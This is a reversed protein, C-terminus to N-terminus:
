RERELEEIRKNQAEVVANLEKIAEVLVPIMGIYNIGKYALPDRQEIDSDYYPDTGPHINETVLEPFVEELEQAIFGFQTGDILNMYAYEECRNEYMKGQLRTIKELSNDIKRINQKLSLDSPNSFTGTVTVNGNFYGAYNTSIIGSTEAFVAYNTSYSDEIIFQGGYRIGGQNGGTIESRVGYLLNFTGTGVLYARVATKGGQFYGGTGSNPMSAAKGFIATGDYSIGESAEARIIPQNTATSVVHLLSTPSNTNIGVNRQFYNSSGEPGTFYGAYGDSSATQGYVGANAGTTASALGYVGRGLASVSEGLVGYNTTTTGFNKGFVGASGSGSSTNNAFGRIGNANASASETEGWV